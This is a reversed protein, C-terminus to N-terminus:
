AAPSPADRCFTGQLNQNVVCAPGHPGADVKCDADRRCPDNAYRCFAVPGVSLTPTYNLVASWRWMTALVCRGEPGATCDANTRCPAYVCTRPTAVGCVGNPKAKCDADATCADYYCTNGSPPPVPAAWVSRTPVCIGHPQATCDGPGQCCPAPAGTCSEPMARNRRTCHHFGDDSGLACVADACQGSACPIAPCDADSHCDDHGSGSGGGSGGSGGGGGSGGSGGGGSGGGGVGGGGPAVDSSGGAAGADAAPRDSQAAGAGDARPLDADSGASAADTHAASGNSCGGVIVVLAGIVVLKMRTGSLLPHVVEDGAVTWAIASM